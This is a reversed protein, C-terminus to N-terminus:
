EGYLEVPTIVERNVGFAGNDHAPFNNLTLISGKPSLQLEDLRKWMTYYHEPINNKEAIRASFFCHLAKCAPIEIVKSNVPLELAEAMRKPVALGWTRDLTESPQSYDVPHEPEIISASQVIPMASIWAPLIDYIEPENLFQRRKTHPLFLYSETHEITWDSDSHRLYGSKREFDSCFELMVQKFDVDRRMETLKSRVSGIIEEESLENIVSRSERLTFGLNRLKVCDFIKNSELFSYYRYGNEGQVSHIIGLSEYHKLFDPTVGLYRAFDGIRYMTTPKDTSFFDSM